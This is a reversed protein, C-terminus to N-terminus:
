GKRIKCTWNVFGGYNRISRDHRKQLLAHLDTEDAKISKSWIAIRKALTRADKESKCACHTVIEEILAEQSNRARTTPKEFHALDFTPRKITPLQYDDQM